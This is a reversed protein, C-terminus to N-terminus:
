TSSMLNSPQRPISFLPSLPLSCLLENEASVIMGRRTMQVGDEEARGEEAAGGQGTDVERAGAIAAGGSISRSACEGRLWTM